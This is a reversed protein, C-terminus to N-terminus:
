GEVIGATLLAQEDVPLDDPYFEMREKSVLDSAVGAHDGKESCHLRWKKVSGDRRRGYAVARYIHGTCHKGSAYVFPCAIKTEDM